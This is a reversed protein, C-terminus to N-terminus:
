FFRCSKRSNKSKFFNGNSYKQDDMICMKKMGTPPFVRSKRAAAPVFFHKEYWQRGFDIKEYRRLREGFILWIKKQVWDFFCKPRLVNRSPTACEFFFAEFQHRTRANFDFFIGERNLNHSDNNLCM